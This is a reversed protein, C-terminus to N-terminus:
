DRWEDSLDVRIQIGCEPCKYIQDGIQPTQNKITKVYVLEKNCKVCYYDAM